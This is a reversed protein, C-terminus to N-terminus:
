PEFGGLTAGTCSDLPPCLSNYDYIYLSSYAKEPINYYDKHYTFKGNNQPTTAVFILTERGNFRKDVDQDLNTAFDLYRAYYVRIGDVESNDIMEQAFAKIVEKDIWVSKTHDVPTPVGEVVRTLSPPRSNNCYAIYAKALLENKIPGSFDKQLNSDAIGLEKLIPFFAPDNLNIKEFKESQKKLFKKSSAKLDTEYKNECCSPFFLFLIYGLFLFYCRM